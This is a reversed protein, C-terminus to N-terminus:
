WSYFSLSWIIWLCLISNSALPSPETTVPCAWALLAARRLELGPLHFPPIKQAFHSASTARNIVEPNSQSVRVWLALCFLLWSHSRVNKVDIKHRWIWAYVHVCLRSCAYMCTCWLCIYIFLFLLLCVYLHACVCVTTYHKAKLFYYNRTIQLLM